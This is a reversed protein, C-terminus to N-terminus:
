GLLADFVRYAGSTSTLTNHKGAARAFEYVAQHTRPGFAGDLTGNYYGFRSLQRQITVREAHTYSNFVRAATTANVGSGHASSQGIVRGPTGKPPTYKPPQYQPQQYQPQQYQPQFQPQPAPAAKSKRGQNVIAGVILAAAVGKLMNRENKGLAQAPAAFGLTLSLACAAVVSKNLLM